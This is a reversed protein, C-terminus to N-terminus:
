PKIRGTLLLECTQEHHMASDCPSSGPAAENKNCQTSTLNTCADVWAYWCCAASAVRHNMM